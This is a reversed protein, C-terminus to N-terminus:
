CQKRFHTANQCGARDGVAHWQWHCQLWRVVLETVLHMDNDLCLFSNGYVLFFSILHTCLVILITFFWTFQEQLWTMRSNLSLTRVLMKGWPNTPRACFNGSVWACNSFIQVTLMPLLFLTGVRRKGTHKYIKIDNTFWIESSQDM